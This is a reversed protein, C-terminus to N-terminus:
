KTLNRAEAAAAISAREQQLEAFLEAPTWQCNTPTLVAKNPLSVGGARLSALVRDFREGALSVFVLMPETIEGAPSSPRPTDLMGAATLEEESMGALLGLKTGHDEAPFRRLRVKLPLLAAQIKQRLAPEEACFLLISERM